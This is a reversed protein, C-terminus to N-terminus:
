KGRRRLIIVATAAIVAIGVILWVWWSVGAPKETPAPIATPAPTATPGPTPAMIPVSTATPIPTSTVAATPVPTATPTPTVAPTATPAPRLPAALAVLGFVSLGNPSIAQFIARGADDYGVLTTELMERQETEADYRFIVINNEGHEAVYAQDVKMTITAEGIDTANELNTKEVEIAYAVDVISTSGETAALEFGSQADESLTRTITIKISAGEPLTKLWASV